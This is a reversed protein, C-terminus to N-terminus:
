FHTLIRLNNCIIFCLAKDVELHPLPTYQVESYIDLSPSSRVDVNPRVNPWFNASRPRVHEATGNPWNLRVHGFM